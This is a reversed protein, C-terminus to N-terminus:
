SAVFFLLRDAGTLVEAPRAQRSKCRTPSRLGCIGGVLGFEKSAQPEKIKAEVVGVDHSPSMGNALVHIVQRADAIADLGFHGRGAHLQKPARRVQKAMGTVHRARCRIGVPM